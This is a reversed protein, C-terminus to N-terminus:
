RELIAVVGQGGAACISILARGSGKQALLKAACDGLFVVRDRAADFLDNAIRAETRNARELTQMVAQDMVSSTTGAISSQQKEGSEAVLRSLMNSHVLSMAAYVATLLAVTLLILRFIKSQIGGTLLDKNSKM